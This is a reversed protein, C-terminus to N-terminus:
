SYNRGVFRLKNKFILFINIKSNYHIYIVQIIIEINEVKGYNMFDLVELLWPLIFKLVTLDLPLIRSFEKFSEMDRDIGMNPLDPM